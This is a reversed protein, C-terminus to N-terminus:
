GLLAPNCNRHEGKDQGCMDGRAVRVPGSLDQVTELLFLLSIPTPQKNSQTM